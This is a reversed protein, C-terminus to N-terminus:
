FPCVGGADPNSKGDPTTDTIVSDIFEVLNITEGKSAADDFGNILGLIETTILELSEGILLGADSHYCYAFDNPDDSNIDKITLGVKSDVEAIFVNIEGYIPHICNFEIGKAEKYNDKNYKDM